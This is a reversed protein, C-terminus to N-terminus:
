ELSWIQLRCPRRGCLHLLYKGDPPKVTYYILLFCCYNNFVTNKGGVTVNKTFLNFWM